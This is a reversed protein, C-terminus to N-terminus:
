LKRILLKVGHEPEITLRFAPSHCYNPSLSFSFNSLILSLVVKLEVMAFNQGICTRTGVGFPIYAHPLKCASSIGHSFREPNFEHADPGWIEPNHHMTPVSIWINIGKPIHIGGFDMSELAQRTVFAAPPYLRLTEQIVMTLIKMKRIKDADPMQGGCVEVVEARVRAQWEPYVALLMLSWAATIATTEHGAFYINKCNDVLFHDAMDAGMQSAKAAELLCQLLDKESTNASVERREKVLKLILLHIERELKWIKRNNETPLFRFGPLGILISPKSMTQQLARLRLFIEKGKYYSSGFCTRSIVDASFSRLAEDVTIDGIGGGSAIRGEWSKLLPFTSEVMLGVMSKVRDMFFEPAIIKRQHAWVSGNATLIGSGFLPGREKQIYRPKGLDLSKQLSIEKVLDPHSVYLLLINGTSYLFIPGYQKRWHEFYPFLITAYNHAVHGDDRRTTKEQLQIRKMDNINGYFFSPQPGRIGQRRLVERIKEPKQWLIYYVYYLVVSCIGVLVMSIVVRLGEEEMETEAAERKGGCEEEPQSM